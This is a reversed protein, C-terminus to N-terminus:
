VPLHALNSLFTDLWIPCSPVLVSLNDPPEAELPTSAHQPMRGHGVLSEKRWKGWPLKSLMVQTRTQKGPAGLGQSSAILFSSASSAARPRLTEPSCAGFAYRSPHGTLLSVGM